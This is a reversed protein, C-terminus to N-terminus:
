RGLELKEVVQRTTERSWREYKRSPCTREGQGARRWEQERKEKDTGHLKIEAGYEKGRPLPHDCRCMPYIRGRKVKVKVKLSSRRNGRLVRKTVFPEKFINWVHCLVCYLKYIDIRNSRPRQEKGIIKCADSCYEIANTRVAACM